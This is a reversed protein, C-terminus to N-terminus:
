NLIAKPPYAELIAEGSLTLFAEDQFIGPLGLYIFFYKWTEGNSFGKDVGKITRVGTYYGQPNKIIQVQSDGGQTNRYILEKKGEKSEFTSFDPEYLALRIDGGKPIDIRNSFLINIPFDNLEPREPIALRRPIFALTVLKQRLFSFQRPIDQHIDEFNDFPIQTSM